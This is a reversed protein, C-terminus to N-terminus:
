AVVRTTDLFCGVHNRGGLGMAGGGVTNGTDDVGRVAPLAAWSGVDDWGVDAPITVVGTAKEMVGHDISISPLTPYLAKALQPDRAIERVAQGTAPLHADLEAL